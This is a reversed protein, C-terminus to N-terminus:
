AISMKNKYEGYGKKWYKNGYGYGRDPADNIVIAARKVKNFDVIKNIQKIQDKHSHNIRLIFLSVDSFSSTLIADPVLLIPANDIIIYDFMLRAVDVLREFKNNDLLDSPNNPIPGAQIFQLNPVSTNCIIEEITKENKFYNSLGFSEQVDLFKHLTPKHLDAGILLVKKNAKTLIASFNSSIFSKGEGPILSNISVVKAGPQELIANLNSKLGRFSEAIGSRPHQIVPLKVNYKHQIIGELVPLHSSKEIEERTEIKNNFFGVLTIFIFPLMFGGMMGAFVNKVMSPGVKIAADVIAPDIVQVEPAISAKSISAEAKKQLMYTYLENNLDFERQIGVLQKETEPLKKLRDQISSYREKMSTLKTETSKIQNKLTEELGDRTVKIEKELVILSPNKEQVSYSLVERRGYLEMLRTLMGNLNADNIGLVSPNVMEEIKKSDDLYQQLDTYYNYQLETLYQENEIEELKAYVLQAEQGLNMVQNNRRYSSFNDEASKLSTQIRSLQSDIFEMSNESNKSKNEVGFQMFVNNLENIFDAEKQPNDGEITILILESNLEELAIQTKRLYQKTLSNLNNFRLYYTDDVKGWKPNVTFSFFEDYYPQGFKVTKEIDITQKYGNLYTEGEAKLLYEKENLVKLEIMIDEANIANPPLVLEFPENKYLEKKYLLEKRFWSTEWDLNDLAKKYLTYSQLIGIQNEVNTKKGMAMMPNNFSLLNNLDKEEGKILIRSSVQYINPSKKFVFYGLSVGIFCVLLFWPWKKLYKLFVNRTEKKEHADILSIIEEIKEM